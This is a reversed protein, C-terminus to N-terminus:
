GALNSPQLCQILPFINKTRRTIKVDSTVLVQKILRMQALDQLHVKNGFKTIMPGISISIDIIDIRAHIGQFFSFKGGRDAM